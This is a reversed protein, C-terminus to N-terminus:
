HPQSGPQTFTGAFGRLNSTIVSSDFDVWHHRIGLHNTLTDVNRQVYTSDAFRFTYTEVEHGLGVLVAAVLASDFGGLLVAHRRHNGAQDAITGILAEHLSDVIEDRSSSANAAYPIATVNATTTAVTRTGAKMVEVRQYMSHPEPVFGFGLLFDEYARDLVLGPVVCRLAYLSSALWTAGNATRHVFLRHSGRGAAAVLEGDAGFGAAVVDDPDADLLATPNSTCGQAASGFFAAASNNAAILKTTTGSGLTAVLTRNDHSVATNTSSTLSEITRHAADTDPGSYAILGHV